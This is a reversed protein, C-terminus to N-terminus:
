KGGSYYGAYKSVYVKGSDSNQSNQSNSKNSNQDGKRYQAKVHGTGDVQHYPAWVYVGPKEPHEAKTRVTANNDRFNDPSYDASMNGIKRLVRNVNVKKGETIIENVDDYINQVDSGLDGLGNSVRVPSHVALGRIGKSTNENFDMKVVIEGGSKQGARSIAQVLPLSEIRLMGDNTLLYTKAGDIEAVKGVVTKASLANVCGMFAMIVALRKPDPLMNRVKQLVTSNDTM